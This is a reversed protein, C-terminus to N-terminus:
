GQQPAPTYIQINPTLSALFYVKYSTIPLTNPNLFLHSFPDLYALFHM